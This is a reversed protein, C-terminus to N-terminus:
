IRALFGRRVSIAATTAAVSMTTVQLGLSLGVSLLGFPGNAEGALSPADLLLFAFYGAGALVILAMAVTM